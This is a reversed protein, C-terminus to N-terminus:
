SFIKGWKSFIREASHKAWHSTANGTLNQVIGHPLVTHSWFGGAGNNLYKIYRKESSHAWCEPTQGLAESSLPLSIKCALVVLDSGDEPSQSLVMTVILVALIFSKSKNYSPMAFQWLAVVMQSRIIEQLSIDVIYQNAQKNKM